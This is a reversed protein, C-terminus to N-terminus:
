FESTLLVVVVIPFLSKIWLYNINALDEPNQSIHGKEDLEKFGGSGLVTFKEGTPM